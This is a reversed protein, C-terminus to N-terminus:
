QLYVCRATLIWGYRVAAFQRYPNSFTEVTPGFITLNGTNTVKMDVTAAYSSGGIFILSPTGVIEIQAALLPNAPATARASCDAAKFILSREVHCSSAGSYIYFAEVGVRAHGPISACSWVLNRPGPSVGYNYDIVADANHSVLCGSATKTIAVAIPQLQQTQSSGDNGGGGCGSLAALLLVILPKMAQM